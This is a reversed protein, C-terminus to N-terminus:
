DQDVPYSVLEEKYFCMPLMQLVCLHSPRGPKRGLTNQCKEDKCGFVVLAFTNWIVRQFHQHLPSRPSFSM